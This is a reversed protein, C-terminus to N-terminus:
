IRSGCCETMARQGGLVGAVLMIGIVWYIVESTVDLPIKSELQQTTSSGPSNLLEIPGDEM